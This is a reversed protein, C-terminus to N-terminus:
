EKDEQMKYLEVSKCPKDCTSSQRCMLGSSECTFFPCEGFGSELLQMKYDPNPIDNEENKNQEYMAVLTDNISKLIDNRKQEIKLRKMEYDTLAM